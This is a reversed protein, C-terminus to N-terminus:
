VVNSAHRLTVMGQTTSIRSIADKLTMIELGADFLMGVHRPPIM